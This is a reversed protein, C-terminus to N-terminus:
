VVPTTLAPRTGTTREYYGLYNERWQEISREGEGADVLWEWAVDAFTAVRAAGHDRGRRCAARRLGPGGV